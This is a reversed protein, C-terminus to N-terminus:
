GARLLEGRMAGSFEGALLTTPAAHRCALLRRVEDLNRLPFTFSALEQKAADSVPDTSVMLEALESDTCNALAALERRVSSVISPDSLVYQRHLETSAVQSLHSEGRRSFPNGFLAPSDPVHVSPRGVYVDHVGDQVHTIFRATRHTLSAWIGPVDPPLDGEADLALPECAPRARPSPPQPTPSPLAAQSQCPPPSPSSPPSTPPSPAADTLDILLGETPPPNHPAAGPTPLCTTHAPMFSRAMGECPPRTHAAAREHAAMPLPLTMFRYAERAHPPLLQENVGRLRAQYAHHFSVM